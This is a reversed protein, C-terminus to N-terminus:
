HDDKAFSRNSFIAINEFREVFKLKNISGDFRVIAIM